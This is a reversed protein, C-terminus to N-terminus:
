LEDSIAEGGRESILWMNKYKEDQRYKDVKSNYALMELSNKSLRIIKEVISM